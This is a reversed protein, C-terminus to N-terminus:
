TPNRGNIKGFPWRHEFDSISIPQKREVEKPSVGPLTMPRPYKLHSGGDSAWSFIPHESAERVFQGQPRRHKKGPDKKPRRTPCSRMLGLTEFSEEAARSVLNGHGRCPGEEWQCVTSSTRKAGGLFGSFSIIGQLYWCVITEWPTKPPAFHIECGDVTANPDHFRLLPRM